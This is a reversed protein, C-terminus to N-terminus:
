KRKPSIKNLILVNGFNRSCVAFLKISIDREYWLELRALLIKLQSTQNGVSKYNHNIHM